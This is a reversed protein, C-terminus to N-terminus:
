RQEERYESQDPIRIEIWREPDNPRVMAFPSPCDWELVKVRKLDTPTKILDDLDEALAAARKLWMAYEAALKPRCSHPLSQGVTIQSPDLTNWETFNRDKNVIWSAHGGPYPWIDVRVGSSSATVSTKM